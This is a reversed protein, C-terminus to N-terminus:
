CNRGAEGLSKIKLRFESEKRLPVPSCSYDALDNLIAEEDAVLMSGLGQHLRRNM